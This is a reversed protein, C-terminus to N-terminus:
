DQNIAAIVVVECEFVKSLGRLEYWEWSSDGILKTSTSFKVVFRDHNIARVEALVFPKAKIWQRGRVMLGDVHSIARRRLRPTKGLQIDLTDCSEIGWLTDIRM